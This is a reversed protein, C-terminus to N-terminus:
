FVRGPILSARPDAHANLCLGCAQFAELSASSRSDTSHLSLLAHLTGKHHLHCVSALCEASCDRCPVVGVVPAEALASSPPCAQHLAERQWSSCCAGQM